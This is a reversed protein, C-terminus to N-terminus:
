WLELPYSASLAIKASVTANNYRGVIEIATDGAIADPMAGLGPQSSILKWEFDPNSLRKSLFLETLAVEHSLNATAVSHLEGGHLAALKATGYIILVPQLSEAWLTSARYAIAGASPGTEGVKISALLRLERPRLMALSTGVLDAASSERIFRRVERLSKFSYANMLQEQTIVRFQRSLDRFLQADPKM